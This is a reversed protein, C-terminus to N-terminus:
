EYVKVFYRAFWTATDNLTFPDMSASTVIYNARVYSQNNIYIMEDKSSCSDGICNSNIYDVIRKATKVDQFVGVIEEFHEKLIESKYNVKVVYVLQNFIDIDIM